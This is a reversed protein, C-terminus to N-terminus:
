NRPIIMLRSKLYPNILACSNWRDILFRSDSELIKAIPLPCATTRITTKIKAMPIPTYPASSKLTFVVIVVDVVANIDESIVCCVDVTGVEEKDLEEAVEVVEEEEDKDWVEVEDFVSIVVVSVAEFEENM